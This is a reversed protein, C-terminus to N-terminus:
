IPSSGLRARHLARHEAGQPTLRSSFLVVEDVPVRGFSRSRDGESALLRQAHERAHPSHIRFLTVHPQFPRREGPLGVAALAAEIRGQLAVLPEAGEGVGVWLVRPRERTPFAGIGRLEISFPAGEQAASTLAAPIAGAREEPLDGFFHLTLHEEIRAPLEALRDAAIPIALFARM